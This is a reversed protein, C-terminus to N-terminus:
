VRRFIVDCIEVFCCPPLIFFNRDERTANAIIRDVAIMGVNANLSLGSLSVTTNESLVASAAGSESTLMVSLM